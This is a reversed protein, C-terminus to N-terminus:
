LHISCKLEEAFRRVKDPPIIVTHFQEGRAKVSERIRNGRMIDPATTVLFSQVTLGFEKQLAGIKYLARSQRPDDQQDLSKCEVFYLVNDRTFMVDLENDRGQENLVKLGLEADDIGSGVMSIIENFCYEELWGGTLYKLETRPIDKRVVGNKYEFNLRRLLERDADSPSRYCESLTFSKNDRAERLNRSFWKLLNEVEPYHLVIWRSIGARQEAERKYVSLRKENKVRLGYAALYEMVTLRTPIVESQRGVKKPFITLFNNQGIPMYGISCGYDKFFDYAAISMVKTGCTINVLFEADEQGVIWRGLERQINDIDDNDVVLVDATNSYDLHGLQLSQLISPVKGKKEMEPTSIFLLQDPKVHHILLVNPISHDSVMSVLVKKM